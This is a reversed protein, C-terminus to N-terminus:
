ALRGKVRSLGISLWLRFKQANPLTHFRIQGFEEDSTSTFEVVRKAKTKVYTKAKKPAM